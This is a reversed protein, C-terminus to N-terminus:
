WYIIRLGTGSITRYMLLVHTDHSLREFADELNTPDEIKDIDCMALGTWQAAQESGHGLGKFTVAVSFSHMLREKINKNATKKGMAVMMKRYQDTRECLIFDHRMMRIIEGFSVLTSSYSKPCAFLSVRLEDVNM